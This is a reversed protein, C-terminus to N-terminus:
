QDLVDAEIDRIHALHYDDDIAEAQALGASEAILYGVACLRGDSDRFVPNRGSVETNRPFQGRTWYTHLVDLLAYRKEPQSHSLHSVDRERLLAEVYALHTQLRLDEPTEATPDNGHVMRFSQNGLIANVQDVSADPHSSAPPTTDEFYQLAGVGLAIVLLAVLVSYVHLRM